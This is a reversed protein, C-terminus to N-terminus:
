REVRGREDGGVEVIRRGPPRALWRSAHTEHRPSEVPEFIIIITMIIPAFSPPSSKHAHVIM